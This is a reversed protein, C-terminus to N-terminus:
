LIFFMRCYRRFAEFAASPLTPITSPPAEQTPWFGTTLVRVSLDVGHLNTQFYKLIKAEIFHTCCREILMMGIGVGSSMVHQKFEEMITNSVTMDKFMGELKSTFQCGCETKFFFMCKCSFQVRKVFSELLLLYLNSLGFTIVIRFKPYSNLFSSM